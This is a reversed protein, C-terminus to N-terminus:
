IINHKRSLYIVLHEFTFRALRVARITSVVRGGEGPHDHRIENELWGIDM